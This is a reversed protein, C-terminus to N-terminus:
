MVTGATPERKVDPNKQANTRTKQTNKIQPAYDHKHWPGLVLLSVRPQTSNLLLPGPPPQLPPPPPLRSKPPRHHLLLLHHCHCYPPPPPITTTTALLHAVFPGWKSGEETPSHHPPPRQPDCSGTPSGRTRRQMNERDARFHIAHTAKRRNRMCTRAQGRVTPLVRPPPTM